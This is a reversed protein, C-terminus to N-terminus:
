CKIIQIFLIKHVAPNKQQQKMFFHYVQEYDSIKSFKKMNIKPYTKILERNLKLMYTYLMLWPKSFPDALTLNILLSLNIASLPFPLNM